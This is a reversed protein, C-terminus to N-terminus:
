RGFMQNFFHRITHIFLRLRGFFGTGHHQGDLPCESGDKASAESEAPTEPEAPTDPTDPTEAAAKLAAYRAEAATLTAYNTVLAKQAATLADYAARAEDIKAKCAETYEVEGIANIKAIVEDAAAQNAAAADAAEAAAKKDADVTQCVTCTFRADGETGYTHEGTAEIVTGEAQVADCNKCGQHKLGTSGCGAETDIVWEWEHNGTAEIEQYTTYACDACKCSEYAAWGIAGCTEQQAAHNEIDHSVTVTLDASATIDANEPDTYTAPFSVDTTEADAGVVGVTTDAPDDWTWGDPLTVSLLTDGCLATLGTPATYAPEAKAVTYSVSATATGVTVSATYAGAEVPTGTFAEGNKTYTIAYEGPFATTNYGTNLAAPYPTEGDYVLEGTPASITLTLGTTVDCGEGCDATVSAGDALYTFHHVHPVYYTTNLSPTGTFTGGTNAFMNYLANNATVGEGETPIRYPTNYEDTQVRSLKIGTCGKFMYYYCDNALTTAPLEPAATLGTCGYFMNSYCYDALTTAPLEPPATLGTCGRFMYYYCGDALTTAPLEPAATLGTCGYFMYSYCYDALTMAPLEPAATLGTCGYFMSAYCSDALPTAPLEPAATLGTCGSFMSSYCSIALTTAPLEPAATLGTCGSFMYYYCRSVLTTAPLEPAATLGTCGSFMYYYCRSVLTTAPLEPAATLGTCGEFMYSYCYDALTTAPLEPPATLGTCGSFMNSYCYDALTTAPLEPAATLSTCNIFLYAFCSDAMAAADPDQYNLLTRIDGGCEVTGAATIIWRNYYSTSIKTNGTGRLYLVNGASGIASGDWPTWTDGDTSYELTDDWGKSNAEISFSDTGTFTLYAPADAAQAAPLVNLGAFVSLLMVLSLLVSVPKKIRTQM